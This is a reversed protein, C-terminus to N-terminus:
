SIVLITGNITAKVAGINERVQIKQADTLEQEAVMVGTEPTLADDALSQVDVIGDEIHNLEAATLVNGDQFNQKVYAM